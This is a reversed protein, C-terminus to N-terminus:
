QPLTTKRDTAPNPFEATEHIGLESPISLVSKGVGGGPYNTKVARYPLGSPGLDGAFTARQCPFCDRRHGDEDIHYWGIHESFVILEKCTACRNRQDSMQLGRYNRGDEQEGLSDMVWMKPLVKSLSDPEDRNRPWIFDGFPRNTPPYWCWMESLLAMWCEDYRLRLSSV